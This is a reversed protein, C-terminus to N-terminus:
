HSFLCFLDSFLYAYRFFGCILFSVEGPFIQIIIKFKLVMKNFVLIDYIIAFM